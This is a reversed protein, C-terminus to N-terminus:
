WTCAWGVKDVWKRVTEFRKQVFVKYLEAWIYVYVIHLYPREKKRVKHLPSQFAGDEHHRQNGAQGEGYGPLKSLEDEEDLHGPNEEDHKSYQDPRTVTRTNFALRSRVKTPPSKQM